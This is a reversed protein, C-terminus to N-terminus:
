ELIFPKCDSLGQKYLKLVDQIRNFEYQQRKFNEKMAEINSFDGMTLLEYFSYIHLTAIEIFDKVERKKYILNLIEKYKAILKQANPTIIKKIELEKIIKQVINNIEAFYDYFSDVEKSMKEVKNKAYEKDFNANINSLDIKEIKELDNIIELLKKNEFGNIQAAGTSSNILEIEPKEEKIRKAIQEFKEIFLAYGTQTPIDKGEQSKVTYLNKNLFEINNKAIERSLEDSYGNAKFSMAYSEFDAAKIVYKKENEDYICELDGYQSGKAYCAGDKYALDQGCVIIKDFGMVYASMLASYSVTGFTELYDNLKLCDRLWFNLFNANSLYNFTKKTEFNSVLNCCFGELIFYYDKPDILSFQATTNHPEIDVIFDPKINNQALLKVTPNVAFIVFKDQNEKIIDINEKLSPGASLCLATKGKYIGRLDSINPNKFINKLNLFTNQYALPAKKFFTNKNAVYLASAKQATNLVDKIDDFFLEKYSSLFTITIETNENSISEVHKTLKEKDSCLIVNEHFIADIEAISFVLKLIDLNPEYIIIKSNKINQYLEDLLYGLGLGYLLRVSNKNDKNEINKVINKAELIAGNQSHLPINNFLLNYEDQSTKILELNSKEVDLMLIKDALTSDYKSIADLNKQLVKNEM